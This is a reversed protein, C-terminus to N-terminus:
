NTFLFIDDIEDRPKKSKVKKQVRPQIREMSVVNKARQEAAVQRGKRIRPIVQIV